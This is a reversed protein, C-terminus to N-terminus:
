PVFQVDVQVIVTFEPAGRTIAPVGDFGEDINVSHVLPHEPVFLNHVILRVEVVVTVASKLGAKITETDLFPVPVPTTVPSAPILQPDVQAPRDARPPDIVTM